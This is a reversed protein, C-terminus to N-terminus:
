RGRGSTVRKSNSNGGKKGTRRPSCTQTSKKKSKTTPKSKEVNEKPKPYYLNTFQTRITDAVNTGYKCNNVKNCVKEVKDKCGIVVSGGAAGVSSNFLDVEDPALPEEKDATEKDIYLRNHVKVQGSFILWEFKRRRQLGPIIKGGSRCRAMFAQELKYKIIAYRKKDRASMNEEGKQRLKCYEQLSPVMSRLTGPGCNWALSFLALQEGESFNEVSFGNRALCSDIEGDFKKELPKYSDFLEELAKITDSEAVKTGDEKRTIGVSYTFFKEHIDKSQLKYPVPRFDEWHFILCFKDLELKTMKSLKNILATDSYISDALTPRSLETVDLGLKDATIKLEKALSDQLQDPSEPTIREVKLSDPSEATEAAQVGHAGFISLLGATVYAKLKRYM